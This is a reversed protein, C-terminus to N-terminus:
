RDLRAYVQNAKGLNYSIICAKQTKDNPPLDPFKTCRLRHMLEKLCAYSPVRVEWKPGTVLYSAQVPHDEVDTM